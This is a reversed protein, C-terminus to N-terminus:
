LANIQRLPIKKVRPKDTSSKLPIRDLQEPCLACQPMPNRLNAVFKEMTVDDDDPELPRYSEMLSRQQDSMRVYFQKQFEPLLAVHHCKFLKGRSLTFCYKSQCVEHAQEPDSDYVEFADDGAYRLPATYFDEAYGLGIHVGNADRFRSSHTNFRWTEPDVQAMRCEEQIWTPLRVFDDSSACDPWSPDRVQEYAQVWQRMDGDYEITIPDQLLDRVQQFLQPYRERNHATIGLSVRYEKLVDYLGQHHDLRTGNTLIMIGAQPWLQRLGQAWDMLGPHLMPEGGLITIEDFDFRKSWKEYDHKYEHWSQHGSFRYNNLRNCNDCNFNCVNTIYVEMKRIYFKKKM